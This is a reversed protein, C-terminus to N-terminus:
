ETDSRERDMWHRVYPSCHLLEIGSDECGILFRVAEVDVLTVEELDLLPKFDPAEICQKLESLQGAQMRGILRVTSRERLSREIRLTVSGM